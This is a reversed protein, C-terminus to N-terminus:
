HSAASDLAQVTERGPDRRLRRTSVVVVRAIPSALGEVTREERTTLPVDTVVVVLDYPRKVM